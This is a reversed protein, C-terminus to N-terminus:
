VQLMYKDIIPRVRVEYFITVLQICYVSIKSFCEVFYSLHQMDYFFPKHNPSM